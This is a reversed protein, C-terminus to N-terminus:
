LEDLEALVDVRDSIGMPEGVFALPAPANGAADPLRGGIWGIGVVDDVPIDLGEPTWVWGIGDFVPGNFYVQAPGHQGPLDAEDKGVRLVHTGEALKGHVAARPGADRDM